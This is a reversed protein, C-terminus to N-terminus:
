NQYTLVEAGEEVAEPRRELGGSSEGGLIRDAGEQVDQRRRRVHEVALDHDTRPDDLGPGLAPDTYDASTM